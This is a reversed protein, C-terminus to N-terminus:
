ELRRAQRFRAYRNLLDNILQDNTFGTVDHPQDDPTHVMARFHQRDTEQTRRTEAWAFTPARFPRARIAYRFAGRDGHPVTLDVHDEDQALEPSLGRERMQAAVAELAPRATGALFARIEERDHFHLISSLQQQWGMGSAAGTTAGAAAAAAATVATCGFDALLDETMLLVLMEDEVVLVRRGALLRNM